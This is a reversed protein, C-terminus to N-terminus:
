PRLRGADQGAFAFIEQGTIAGSRQKILMSIASAVDEAGAIRGDVHEYLVVNATMGLKKLELALTRFMSLMGGALASAGSDRPDGMGAEAPLLAVIHGSRKSSTNARVYRQIEEFADTLAEAVAQWVDHAAAVPLAPAVLLGHVENVSTSSGSVAHHQNASVLAVGCTEFAALLHGGVASEGVYFLLPRAPSTM